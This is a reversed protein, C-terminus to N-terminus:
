WHPLYLPADQVGFLTFLDGLEAKTSAAILPSVKQFYRQSEARAFIEFPPGHERYYVLTEPWWRQRGKEKYSTVASLPRAPCSPVNTGLRLSAAPYILTNATLCSVGM